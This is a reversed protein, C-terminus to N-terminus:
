RRRRRPWERGRVAFGSPEKPGCRANGGACRSRRGGHRAEGRRQGRTGDGRTGMRRRATSSAGLRRPSRSEVRARAGGERALARAHAPDGPRDPVVEDGPVLHRGGGAEAQAVGLLHHEEGGFVFVDQGGRQRAGDGHLVVLEGAFEARAELFQLADPVLEAGLNQIPARQAHRLPQAVARLVQPEPVGGRHLSARTQRKELLAVDHNLRLRARPLRERVEHGGDVVQVEHRTLHQLHQDYHRAALQGDLRDHQRVTQEAPVDVHAHGARAVVHEVVFPRLPDLHHAHELLVVFGSLAECVDRLNDHPRRVRQRAHFVRPEQFDVEGLGDDGVLRILEELLKRLRHLRQQRGRRVRRHHLVPLHHQAAHADGVRHHSQHLLSAVELSIRQGDLHASGPAHGRGDLVSPQDRRARAFEDSQRTLYAGVERERSLVRRRRARDHEHGGRRRRLSGRARQALREPPLVLERHQERVAFLRHAHHLIEFVLFGRKQQARRVDLASQVHGAHIVDVRQVRRGGRRRVQM